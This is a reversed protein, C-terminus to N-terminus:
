NNKLLKLNSEFTDTLEDMYDIKPFETKQLQVFNDFVPLGNKFLQLNRIEKVGEVSLILEKIRSLYIADIKSTLDEEFVFGYKPLPGTFIKEPSIGKENWLRTPDHFKVQPNIYSDLVAYLKAM